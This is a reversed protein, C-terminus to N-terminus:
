KHFWIPFNTFEKNNLYSLNNKLGGFQLYFCHLLQTSAKFKKNDENKGYKGDGIIPHNLYALSARIQHTKGTILNCEVISSTSSSKLTNFITTIPVSGKIQNKFIKVISNKSDKLLFANMTYDKFNTEGVVQTLYKKNITHNKFAKSLEEQSDKNKAFIILGTTNRDLRHVPLVKLISTLSDEGEVEIGKPKNLILINEDQYIIEFNQKERMEETFFVTIEDGIFIDTNTKTRIDNVKVDKNKLIKTINTFSFGKSQLISILKDDKTAKFNLKEMYIDYFM